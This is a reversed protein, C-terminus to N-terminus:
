TLDIHLNHLHYGDHGNQEIPTTLATGSGVLIIRGTKAMAEAEAATLRYLAGDMGSQWYEDLPLEYVDFSLTVDGNNLRLYESVVAFRNYAEGDAAPFWFKGNEYKWKMGWENEYQAGEEPDLARGFFRMCLENVTELTVTEYGQDYVIADHRNLKCFLRAFSSLEMISGNDRPYDRIFQEAFDSVFINAWYQSDADMDEAAFAWRITFDSLDVYFPQIPDTSYYWIVLEDPGYWAMDSPWWCGEVANGYFSLTKGECDCAFFDPGYYGCLYVNGNREDILSSISAGHFDENKWLEEGDSLRLCILAGSCNFYYRDNWLGVEEILTLETRYETAYEKQWVPEGAETLGSILVKEVSSNDQREMVVKVAPATFVVPPETYPQPEETPGPTEPVPDSSEPATTEASSEARHRGAPSAGEEADKSGCAPLLMMLCLLLAILRLCKKM